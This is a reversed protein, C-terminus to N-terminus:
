KTDNREHNWVCPEKPNQKFGLKTLTAALHEFFLKAAEICGYLGKLLRVVLSGDDCRFSEYKGPAIKCLVKALSKEIVMHVVRKMPANLYASGIDMTRVSRGEHVAIAAVIYLASNSVTPSSTEDVTYVSM